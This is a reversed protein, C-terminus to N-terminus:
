PLTIKFLGKSNAAYITKEDFSISILRTGKLEDRAIQKFHKGDKSLIIIRSNVPDAIYLNQFTLDTYIKADVGIAIGTKNDFSDIKKGKYFKWVKGSSDLIYINSDIALSLPDNTIKFSSDSLWKTPNSLAFSISIPSKYLWPANSTLFYLNSNYIALDKISNDKEPFKVEFSKLNKDSVNFLYVASPDNSSVIFINNTLPFQVGWFHDKFNNDIFATSLQNKLIDFEILLNNDILFLSDATHLLAQPEFSFGSKLFDVLQLFQAEKILNRYNQFSSPSVEKNKTANKISFNKNIEKAAENKPFIYILGLIVLVVFLIYAIKLSRNYRNQYIKLYNHFYLSLRNSFKKERNTINKFTPKEATLILGNQKIEKNATNQFYQPFNKNKLLTQAEKIDIKLIAASSSPDIEKLNKKLFSITSEFPLSTVKIKFSEQIIYPIIKPTVALFSDDPYIKGSFIHNFLLATNNKKHNSALQSILTWKGGRILWINAKGSKAFFIRNASIVIILLHLSGKFNKLTNKFHISAKKLTFEFAKVIDPPDTFSYYTKKIVSALANLLIIRSEEKHGFTEVEGIIYLNGLRQQNEQLPHYIFIEAQNQGEIVFKQSITQLHQM